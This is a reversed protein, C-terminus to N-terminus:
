KWYISYYYGKDMLYDLDEEHLALYYIGKPQKGRTTITRSNESYKCNIRNFNSDYLTYDYGRDYGVISIEQSKTLKIKYWRKYNINKSQSYEYKKNKTMTIAKSICYNQKNITNPKKSFKVKAKNDYDDMYIYFTGRYLVTGNTGSSKSYDSDLYRYISSENCEKDPYVIVSSEGRNNKWNVTLITDATVKVKYVTSVDEKLSYWYNYKLPEVKYSAFASVPLISILTIAVLMVFLTRRCRKMSYGEQVYITNNVFPTRGNTM